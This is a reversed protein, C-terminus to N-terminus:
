WRAARGRVDVHLFPGHADTAAYYSAGGTVWDEPPDRDLSDALEFLRESDRVDVVGNGDLDDMRGDRPSEDIFVDAAGGWLHRSFTTENGLARNYAPTRYGSMVALSDARVGSRNLADVFAELKAPLRPDLVVYKPFSGREKCLFAGLRFRPSVLVNETARTVEIFGRPPEVRAGQVTAPAPYDGISYGHLRGKAVAARPVLVFVNVLIEDQAADSAVRLRYLGSRSPARFAWVSPQTQRLGRAGRITVPLADGARDRASILLSEGPLVAASAVRLRSTTDGLRLAFRARVASAEWLRTAASEPPADARAALGCSAVLALVLSLLARRKAQV